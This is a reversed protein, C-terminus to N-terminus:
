VLTELQWSLVHVHWHASNAWFGGRLRFLSLAMWMRPDRIGTLVCPQKSNCLGPINKWCPSPQCLGIQQQWEPHFVHQFCHPSLSWSGKEGRAQMMPFSNGPCMVQTSSDCHERTNQANCLWFSSGLFYLFLRSSETFTPSTGPAMLVWYFPSDSNSLLISNFSSHLTSITPYTMITWLLVERNLLILVSPSLGWTQRWDVPSHKFYNELVIPYSISNAIGLLPLSSFTSVMMTSSSLSFGWSDTMCFILIDWGEM